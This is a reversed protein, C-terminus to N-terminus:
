FYIFNLVNKIMEQHFNETLVEQLHLKPFNEVEKEQFNIKMNLAYIKSTSNLPRQLLLLLLQNHIKWVHNLELQIWSYKKLHSIWLKFLLHSSIFHLIRYSSDRWMVNRKESYSGIIISWCIEALISCQTLPSFCHQSLWCNTRSILFWQMQMCGLIYLIYLVM